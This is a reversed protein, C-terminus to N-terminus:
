KYVEKILSPINWPKLLGTAVSFHDAGVARYKKVDEATYMGGGGIITVKPYYHKIDEILKLSFDHIRRSSESGKDTKLTNCVNFHRIGANYCDDFTITAQPDISPLKVIIKEFRNAFLRLVSPLITPLKVNQCGFNLELTINPYDWLFQYLRIWENENIVGISWIPNNKNPNANANKLRKQESRIGKNRFGMANVWGGSVPRFTKIVQSIIGPRPEITYTGRISTTWPTAPFYIGFPPSILIKKMAM